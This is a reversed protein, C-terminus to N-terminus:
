TQEKTKNILIYLLAEAEQRTAYFAVWMKRDKKVMALSKLRGAAECKNGYALAALAIPTMELPKSRKGRKFPKGM